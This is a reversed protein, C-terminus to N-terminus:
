VVAEKRGGKCLCVAFILALIEICVFAICVSMWITAHEKVFNVIEDLCGNSYYEVCDPIIAPPFPIPIPPQSDTPNSSYTKCCSPPLLLKGPLNSAFESQAAGDEIGCCELNEQIYDLGETFLNAKQSIDTGYFKKIADKLKEEINDLIEEKILSIKITVFLQGGLTIILVVIFFGLLCKINKLAGICGFLSSIVVFCGITIFIYPVFPPVIETDELVDQKKALAEDLLAWTGLSLLALGILLFIVTFLIFFFKVCKDAFQIGMKAKTDKM